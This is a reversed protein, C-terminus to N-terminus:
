IPASGGDLLDSNLENSLDDLLLDDFLASCDRSFDEAAVDAAASDALVLKLGYSDQKPRSFADVGSSGRDAELWEVDPRDLVGPLPLLRHELL